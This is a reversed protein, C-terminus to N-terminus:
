RTARAKSSYGHWLKSSNNTAIRLFGGNRGSSLAFCVNTPRFQLFPSACSTAVFLRTSSDLHLLKARSPFLPKPRRPAIVYPTPPTPPASSGGAYRNRSALCPFWVGCGRGEAEEAKLWGWAATDALEAKEKGREAWRTPGVM